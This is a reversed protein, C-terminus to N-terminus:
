TQSESAIRHSQSGGWTEALLRGVRAAMEAAQHNRHKPWAYQVPMTVGM